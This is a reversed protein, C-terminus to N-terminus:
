LAPRDRRLNAPELGTERAMIGVVGHSFAAVPGHAGGDGMPKTSAAEGARGVRLNRHVSPLEAAGAERRGRKDEAAINEAPRDILGGGEGKEVGEDVLAEIADIRRVDIRGPDGAMFAAFGLRDDAVPQLTGSLAVFIRM